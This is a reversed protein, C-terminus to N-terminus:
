CPHLINHKYFTDHTSYSLIFDKFTFIRIHFTTSHYGTCRGLLGQAVSDYSPNDVFRDYCIQINNLPISKACRLKDIIFIFTHKTPKVHLLSTFDGFKCRYSPESIYQFGFSSFVYQFDHILDHHKLGRPTRIIHYFPNDIDIHTLLHRINDHSDILPKCDFIQGKELYKQVSVYKEPVDMHLVKLSNRWIDVKDLLSDPTATLHVIKINKSYLRKINFFGLKNYLSYLTQGYKNAVHSEDFIILVNDLDKVLKIFLGLQNRHFIRKHMSDPFRQKTQQTWEISSHGTFIFVNDYDVRYKADNKNFERIIALMSGTKGSQTPAVALVHTVNLDHFARCINRGFQRQNEFTDNQYLQEIRQDAQGSVHFSKRIWADDFVFHKSIARKIRVEKQKKLLKNQINDLKAQEESSIARRVFSPNLNHEVSIMIQAVLISYIDAHTWSVLLAFTEIKFFQFLLLV